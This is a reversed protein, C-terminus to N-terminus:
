SQIILIPDWVVIEYWLKVLVNTTVTVTSPNYAFIYFYMLESPSSGFAAAGLDDAYYQEPTQGLLQNLFVTGSFRAPLGGSYSLTKVKSHPSEVVLEFAALITPNAALAGNTPIVGVHLQDNSPTFEVQYKMRLVKYKNYLAALTDHGYPQHGTNSADPDFISNLRFQNFTGTNTTPSLPITTGYVLTSEVRPQIFGLLPKQISLFNRTPDLSYDRKGGKRPRSMKNNGRRRNM